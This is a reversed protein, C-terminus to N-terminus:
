EQATGHVIFEFSRSGTIWTRGLPYSYTMELASLEFDIGVYPVFERRCGADAFEVVPDEGAHTARPDIISPCRRM